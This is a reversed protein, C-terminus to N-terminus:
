QRTDVSFLTGFRSFLRLNGHLKIQGTLLALSLNVRGTFMQCFTAIDRLTITLGPRASIGELAVAQEPSVSVQWNGGGSGEVSFAIVTRLDGGLDYRYLLSLACMVRGITRHVIEPSLQNWLPAVGAPEAVQATHHLGTHFMIIGLAEVVKVPRNYIPMQTATETQEPPLNRVIAASQELIGLLKECLVQRPLHLHADIGERNFANFQYRNELRPFTYIEGRLAAQISQLGHGNLACLHAVTEQLNWEKPWGKVPKQWDRDSLGNFFSAYIRRVEDTDNALIIPNFTENM